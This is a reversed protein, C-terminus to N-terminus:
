FVFGDSPRPSNSLRVKAGASPTPPHPSAIGSQTSRQHVLLGPV